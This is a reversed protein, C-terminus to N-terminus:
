TCIECKFMKTKRDVGACEAHAWKKCIECQFWLEKSLSWSYLENCYICPSDEEDLDDGVDFGEAQEDENEDEMLCKKNMTRESKRIMGEKKQSDEDQEIERGIKKKVTRAAKRLMVEKKQSEEYKLKEIEPTTTLNGYSGKRRKRRVIEAVKPMPSIEEISPDPNIGPVPLVLTENTKENSVKTSQFSQVSNTMVNVKNLQGDQVPNEDRNDDEEANTVEAAAFMWDPFINDNFPAIGTASFGSLANPITAAKIYAANFLSAVQFHTVVRGPNNKLWNTLEQNYYANLPGFFSVDLPQLRHTCHPPFCFLIIGNEKAYLLADLSKHSTHGDLLLLVKNQKSPKAYKAFHKLWKPFIDSNMYGNEQTFAVSGVPAGDMLEAKMNKRPFILAPPIYTGLFICLM